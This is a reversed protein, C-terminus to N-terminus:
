RRLCITGQIDSEISDLGTLPLAHGPNSTYSDLLDDEESRPLFGSVFAGWEINVATQVDNPLGPVWKQIQGVTEICAANTGTGLVVGIEARPDAYRTACM